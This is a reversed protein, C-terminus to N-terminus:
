AFQEGGGARRKTREATVHSGVANSEAEWKKQRIVVKTANTNKTRYQIILSDQREQM